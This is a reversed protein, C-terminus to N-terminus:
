LRRGHRPRDWHKGLYRRRNHRGAQAAEIIQRAIRDKVSGAPNFYEVKALVDVGEPMTRNLRVLPTNGITSDISSHIKAVLLGWKM